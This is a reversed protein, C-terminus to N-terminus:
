RIFFWSVVRIMFWILSVQFKGKQTNLTRSRTIGRKDKTGRFQKNEVLKGLLVSCENRNKGMRALHGAWRTRSKIVSIIDPSFYFNDSEDQLERWMGTLEETTLGFDTGYCGFDVDKRWM